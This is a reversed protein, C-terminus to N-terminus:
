KIKQYRALARERAAKHDVIPEPYTTGLHVGAKDLVHKPAKSPEHIFKAPLDQLEAVWMKIYDGETDFKESQLTPNFIRFYPSSDLGSGAVWQWGMTNNAIDADILTDMFWKAGEQWTILLHKTLFSAAIMRVRNHMFGTAWLERMGADVIPYGTKGKTWQIFAEDDAQWNFHDFKDNLPKETSSPFHLLVSYSFERWILQRIFPEVPESRKLLSHYMSRSSIVGLALYPSLTSHSGNAPFDRRQEYTKLRNKTFSNFRKIAAKDGPEWMSEMVHYWNIDPLLGLGELSIGWSQDPVSLEKIRPLPKPVEHKRFENYFSTFVKYPTDDKKKITWPPLLLSGEFTQVEIGKDHLEKAIVLDREYTDPEYIRNWYVADAGCQHVWEWLREKYDGKDYWIRGGIQKMSADLAKLNQHVWWGKAGGPTHGHDAIYLPLVPGKKLAHTLAPHDHLRLDDRLVVITLKDM